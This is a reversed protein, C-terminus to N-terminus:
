SNETTQIHTPVCCQVEASFRLAVSLWLAQGKVSEAQVQVAVGQVEVGCPRLVQVDVEV